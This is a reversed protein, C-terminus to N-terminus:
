SKVDLGPRGSDERLYAQLNGRRKRVQRIEGAVDGRMSTLREQIRAHRADTSRLTEVAEEILKLADAGPPVVPPVRVAEVEAEINARILNLESFRDWNGEMLASEQEEVVSAYRRYLALRQVLTQALAAGTM